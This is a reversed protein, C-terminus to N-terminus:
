TLTLALIQKGSPLKDRDASLASMKADTPRYPVRIQLVIKFIKKKAIKFLPVKEKTGFLCIFLMTSVLPPLKLVTM